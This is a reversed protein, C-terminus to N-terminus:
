AGRNFFNSLLSGFDFTKVREILLTTINVALAGCLFAAIGTSKLPVHQILEPAGMYGVGSSILLYIVRRTIPLDRASTVFLAGGAIAGVLANADVGPVYSGATAATALATSTLAILAASAPETM